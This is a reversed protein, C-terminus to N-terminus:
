AIELTTYGTPTDSGVTRHEAPDDVTAAGPVAAPGAAAAMAVLIPVVRDPVATFRNRAARVLGAARLERLHHHVQGATRAGDVQQLDALTSAGRLMRVLLQLRVPHGLAALVAATPGMDLDLVGAVHHEVQWVLDGGGPTRAVGGYAITGGVGGGDVGGPGTRILHDLLWWVEPPGPLTGAAGGDGTAGATDAAPDTAAGVVGATATAGPVSGAAELAALRQELAALREEVSM